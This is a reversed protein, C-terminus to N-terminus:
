NSKSSNLNVAATACVKKGDRMLVAGGAKICAAEEAATAIPKHLNSKSSNLNSAAQGSSVTAVFVAMASAAIPVLHIKM